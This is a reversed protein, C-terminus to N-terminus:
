ENYNQLWRQESGSPQWPKEPVWWLKWGLSVYDCYLIL